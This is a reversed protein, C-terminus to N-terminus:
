QQADWQWITVGYDGGFEPMPEGHNFHRRSNARAPTFWLGARPCAQGAVCRLRPAAARQSAGAKLKGISNNQRAWDALDKPYLIHDRFQSDDVGQIVSIAAAEFAWYGNYPSMYEHRVLHADHWSCGEFSKYWEDLYRGIHDSAESSTSADFISDLLADYPKIHFFTNTERPDSVGPKLLEEILIDEGRYSELLDSLTQVDGSRGFLVALSIVLVAEQFDEISEFDLPTIDVRNALGFEENLKQLFIQNDLHWRCFWSFMESFLPQLEHVAVGATYHRLFRSRLDLYLGRQGFPKYDGRRRRQEIVRLMDGRVTEFWKENKTLMELTLFQQRRRERFEHNGFAIPLLSPVSTSKKM